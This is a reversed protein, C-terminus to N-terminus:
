SHDFGRQEPPRAGRLVDGPRRYEQARIPTRVDSPLNEGDVAPEPQSTPIPPLDRSPKSHLRGAPPHGRRGSDTPAHSREVEVLFHRMDPFDMSSRTTSITQSCSLVLFSSTLRSVDNMLSRPASERSVTSSTMSNSSRNPM